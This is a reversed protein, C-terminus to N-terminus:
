NWNNLKETQTDDQIISRALCDNMLLKKFYTDEQIAEIIYQFDIGKAEVYDLIIDTLSLTKEGEKAREIHTLLENMIEYNEM